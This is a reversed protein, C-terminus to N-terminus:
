RLSGNCYTRHQYNLAIDSYTHLNIFAKLTSVTSFSRFQDPLYSRMVISMGAEKGDISIDFFVKNTIKPGKKESAAFSAPVSILAMCIVAVLIGARNRM